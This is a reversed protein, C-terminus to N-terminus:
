HLTANGKWTSEVPSGVRNHAFVTLAMVSPRNQPSGNGHLAANKGVQDGYAMLPPSLLGNILKGDWTQVVYGLLGLLVGRRWKGGGMELVNIIFTWGELGSLFFFFFLIFHVSLYFWCQSNLFSPLQIICDKWKWQVDAECNNRSNFSVFIFLPLIFFSIM